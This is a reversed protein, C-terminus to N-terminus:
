LMIITNTNHHGHLKTESRGVLLLVDFLLLSAISADVVDSINAVVNYRKARSTDDSNSSGEVLLLPHRRRTESRKKYRHQVTLQQIIGFVVM